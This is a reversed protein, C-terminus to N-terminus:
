CGDLRERAMTCCLNLLLAAVLQAQYDSNLNGHVRFYVNKGVIHCFLKCKDYRVPLSPFGALVVIIGPITQISLM